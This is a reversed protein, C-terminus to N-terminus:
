IYSCCLFTGGQRRAPTLCKLAGPSPLYIHRAARAPLPISASRARLMCSPVWLTCYTSSLGDVDWRVAGPSRDCVISSGIARARALAPEASALEEAYRPTAGTCGCALCTFAVVTTRVLVAFREAGTKDTVRMGSALTPVPALTAASVNENLLRNLVLVSGTSISCLESFRQDPVHSGDGSAAGSLPSNSGILAPLTGQLGSL